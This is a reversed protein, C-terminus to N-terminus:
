PVDRLLLVGICVCAVFVGLVPAVSHKAVDWWFWASDISEMVWRARTLRVERAAFAAQAEAAPLQRFQRYEDETIPPDYRVAGHISVVYDIFGILFGMLVAAALSKALVKKM